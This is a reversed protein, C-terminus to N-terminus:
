ASGALSLREPPLTTPLRTPVGYINDYDVRQQLTLSDRRMADQDLLDMCYPCREGHGSWLVRGGYILAKGDKIV